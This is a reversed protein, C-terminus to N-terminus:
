RPVVINQDFARIAAAACRRVPITGHRGRTLDLRHSPLGREFFRRRKVNTVLGNNANYRRQVSLVRLSSMALAKKYKLSKVRATLVMLATLGLSGPAQGIM